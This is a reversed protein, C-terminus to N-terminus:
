LSFTEIKKEFKTWNILNEKIFQAKLTLHLFTEDLGLDLLIEGMNNKLHEISEFQVNETNWKSNIKRYLIIVTNFNIKSIKASPNWNRWFWTDFLSNKRQQSAKAGQYFCDTPSIHTPKNRLERNEKMSKHTMERGIGYQKSSQIELTVRLM